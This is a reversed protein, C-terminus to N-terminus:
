FRREVGNARIVDEAKAVVEEERLGEKLNALFAIQVLEGIRIGEQM